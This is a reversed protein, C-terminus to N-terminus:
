SDGLILAKTIMTKINLLSFFLNLSALMNDLACANKGTLLKIFSNVPLRWNIYGLITNQPGLTQMTTITAGVPGACM